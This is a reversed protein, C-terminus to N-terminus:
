TIPALWSTEVPKPLQIPVRPRLPDSEPSRRGMEIDGYVEDTSVQLYRQVNLDRAAELLVRTGEIDTHVFASPGLISRAVHTEAAFNVVRTCGVMAARVAPDCTTGRRFSYRPHDEVDALNGRRGAYTLADLVVIETCPWRDRALRVFNSGIFSAGGAILLKSM